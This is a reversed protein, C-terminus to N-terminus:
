KWYKKIKKNFKKLAQKELQCVRMKSLQFHEAIQEQTMPGEVNVLCLVCNSHEESKIYHRDEKGLIRWYHQCIM